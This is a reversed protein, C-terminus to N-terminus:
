SINKKSSLTKLTKRLIDFRELVAMLATCRNKYDARAYYLTLNCDNQESCNFVYLFM